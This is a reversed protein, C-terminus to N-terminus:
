SVSTDFFIGRAALDGVALEGQHYKYSHPFSSLGAVLGGASEHFCLEDKEFCVTFPLRKSVVILRGMGPNRINM